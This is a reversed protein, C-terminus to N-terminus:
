ISLVYLLSELIKASFVKIIRLSEADANANKAQEMVINYKEKLDDRYDRDRDIKFPAYLEKCIFGKNLWALKMKRNWRKKSINFFCM